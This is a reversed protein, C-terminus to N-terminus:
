PHVIVNGHLLPTAPLQYRDGSLGCDFIRLGFADGGTPHSGDWADVVFTCTDTDNLVGVGQFRGRPEGTVVLWEM